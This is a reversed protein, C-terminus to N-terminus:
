SFLESPLVFLVWKEVHEWERFVLCGDMLWLPWCKTNLSLYGWPSEHHHAPTVLSWLTMFFAGKRWLVSYKLSPLVGAVFCVWKTCWRMTKIEVTIIIVNVTARHTWACDCCVTRWRYLRLALVDFSVRIAWINIIFKDQTGNYEEGCDSQM